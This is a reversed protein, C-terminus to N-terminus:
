FANRRIQKLKPERMGGQKAIHSFIKITQEVELSDTKDVTLLEVKPVRRKVIRKNGSKLGM